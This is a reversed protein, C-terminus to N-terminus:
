IRKFPAYLAAPDDVPVARVTAFPEGHTREILGGFYRDRAEIRALFDPQSLRTARESSGQDFLQSRYCQIAAKKQEFFGSTDVIFSPAFPLHGMFFLFANPRFPEGAAPYRALGAPYMINRIMTGEASHDPHLDEWHHALVIAPRFRRILEVLKVRNELTDQLAGDPMALNVREQVGLAAAAAAAERLRTEADGRTGAEGRTLDAVAVSRGRAIMKALTGGAILEVDDPHAGIALVDVSTTM